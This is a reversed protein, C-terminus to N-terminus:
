LSRVVAAALGALLAVVMVGLTVLGPMSTFFHKLNTLDRDPDPKGEAM